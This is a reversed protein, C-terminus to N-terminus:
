LLIQRLAFVGTGIQFLRIRVNDKSRTNYVHHDRNFSVNFSHTFSNNLCKFMFIARHEARRRSLVKWKLKDLAETASARLPLIIRAVKNQLVQLQTMLSVNGRDGWVIDAYDFISLIYSNFFM